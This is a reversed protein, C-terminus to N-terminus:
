YGISGPTVYSLLTEVLNFMVKQPYRPKAAFMHGNEDEYMALSEGLGLESAVGPHCQYLLLSISCGLAM